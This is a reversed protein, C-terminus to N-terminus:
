MAAALANANTSETAAVGSEACSVVRGRTFSEVRARVSVVRGRPTSVEAPASLAFSEVAVAVLGVRLRVRRAVDAVADRGARGSGTQGTFPGSGSGPDIRGLLRM